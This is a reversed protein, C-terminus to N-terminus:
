STAALPFPVETLAQHNEVGSLVMPSGCFGGAETHAADDM